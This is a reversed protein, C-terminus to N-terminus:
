ITVGTHGVDRVPLRRIRLFELKFPQHAILVLLTCLRRSRIPVSMSFSQYITIGADVQCQLWKDEESKRAKDGCVDCIDNVYLILAM